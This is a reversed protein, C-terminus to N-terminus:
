RYPVFQRIQMKKAWEKLKGTVSGGIRSPGDRGIPKLGSGEGLFSCGPLAPACRTGANQKGTNKSGTDEILHTKVTREARIRNGSRLLIRICERKFDKLKASKLRIRM